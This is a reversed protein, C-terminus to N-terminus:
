GSRLMQTCGPATPFRRRCTRRRCRAGQGSCGAVDKGPSIDCRRSGHTERMGRRRWTSKSGRPLLAFRALPMYNEWCILGGLRGVPTELVRLGAGDGPAWVMREPNTPVLKRHRNLIRGDPGIVVLTNFVSARSFRGEREHIGITVTLGLRAAAERVPALDDAELDVASALLRGHLDRALAYDHPDGPKMRWVYEPYGPIYTEPFVVLRADQGAAEALRDLVRKMTTDRDLLAPPHQVIAATFADARM